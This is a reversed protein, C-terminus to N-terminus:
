ENEDPENSGPKGHFYFHFHHETEHKSGKPEPQKKLIACWIGQFLGKILRTFLGIIFSALDSIMKGFFKKGTILYLCILLLIIGIILGALPDHATSNM